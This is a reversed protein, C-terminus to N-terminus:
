PSNLVEFSHNKRDKQLNHALRLNRLAWWFCQWLKQSFNTSELVGSQVSDLFIGFNFLTADSSNGTNCVDNLLTINRRESKDNCDFISLECGNQSQCGYEWCATTRQIAFSYWIAGLIQLVLLTTFSRIKLAHM